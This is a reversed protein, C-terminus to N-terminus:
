PLPVISLLPPSRTEVRTVFGSTCTSSTVIVENFLNCVLYNGVVFAVGSNVVAEECFFHESLGSLFRCLAMWRNHKYSRFSACALRPHDYCVLECSSGGSILSGFEFHARQKLKKGILPLAALNLSQIFMYIWRYLIQPRPNL